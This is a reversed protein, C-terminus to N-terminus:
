NLFYKSCSIEGFIIMVYNLLCSFLNIIITQIENDKKIKSLQKPFLALYINSLISPDVNADMRLSTVHLDRLNDYFCVDRIITLGNKALSNTMNNTQCM